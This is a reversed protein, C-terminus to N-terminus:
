GSPMTRFENKLWGPLELSLPFSLHLAGSCGGGQFSVGVFSGCLLPAARVNASVVAGPAHGLEGAKAGGCATQAANVAAADVGTPWKRCAM